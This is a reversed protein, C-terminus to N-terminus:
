RAVDALFPDAYDQVWMNGDDDVLLDSYAPQLESPHDARAPMLFGAPDEEIEVLRWEEYREWEEESIPEM